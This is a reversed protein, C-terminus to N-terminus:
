SYFSPLVNEFFHKVPLLVPPFWIPMLFMMIFVLYFILTAEEGVITKTLVNHESDYSLPETSKTAAPRVDRPIGARPRCVSAPTRLRPVAARQPLVPRAALLPVSVAAAAHM